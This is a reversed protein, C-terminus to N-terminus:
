AAAALTRLMALAREIRRNSAERNGIAEFKKAEALPMVVEWVGSRAARSALAEIREIRHSM